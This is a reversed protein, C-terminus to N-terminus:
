TELTEVSKFYTQFLRPNFCGKLLIQFLGSLGATQFLQQSGHSTLPFIPLVPFIPTRGIPIAVIAGVAFVRRTTTPGSL